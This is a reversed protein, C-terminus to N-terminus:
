MTAAWSKAYQSATPLPFSGSVGLPSVFTVFVTYSPPSATAKVSVPARPTTYNLLIIPHSGGIELKVALWYPAGQLIPPSVHWNCRFVNLPQYLLLERIGIHMLDGLFVM